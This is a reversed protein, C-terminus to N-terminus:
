CGERETVVDLRREIYRAFVEVPKAGTGPKISAAIAWDSGTAVKNPNSKLARYDPWPLGNLYEIHTIRRLIKGDSRLAFQYTDLTPGYSGDEFRRTGTARALVRTGRATLSAM